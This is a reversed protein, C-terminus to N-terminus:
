YNELKKQQSELSKNMFKVYLLCCMNCLMMSLIEIQTDTLIVFIIRRKTPQLRQKVCKLMNTM